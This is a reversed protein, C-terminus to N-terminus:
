VPRARAFAEPRKRAISLILKWLDAFAPPDTERASRSSFDVVIRMVEGAEDSGVVPVTRMLSVVDEPAREPTSRWLRIPNGWLAKAM